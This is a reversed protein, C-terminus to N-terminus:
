GALFDRAGHRFAQAPVASIHNRGPVSLFTGHTLLAAFDAARVALPDRDGAVVLTPVDPLPDGPAVGGTGALGAVLHRLAVRDNNRGGAALRDLAETDVGLFLARGDFGGLVMRRVPLLRQSALTWCLRAGLSYGILDVAGSPAVDLSGTVAMDTVAAVLDALVAPLSYAETRHPRDSQGHGRLDPAIVSRGARILTDLHGTRQWNGVASSAFGHVALIPPLGAVPVGPPPSAVLVSTATGDPGHV